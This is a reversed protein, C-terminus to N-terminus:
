SSIYLLLKVFFFHFYSVTDGKTRILLHSVHLGLPLGSIVCCQEDRERVENRIIGSRGSSFSGASHGISYSSTSAAATRWYLPMPDVLRPEGILLSWPVDGINTSSKALPQLMGSPVYYIDNHGLEASSMQSDLVREKEGDQGGFASDGKWM